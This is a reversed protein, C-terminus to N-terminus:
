GAVYLVHTSTIMSENHRATKLSYIDTPCLGFYVLRNILM